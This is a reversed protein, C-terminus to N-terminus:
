RGRSAAPARRTRRPRPRRRGPPPSCWRRRRTRRVRREVVEGHGAQREAPDALAPHTRVVPSGAELREAVRLADEGLRRGDIRADDVGRVPPELRLEEPPQQSAPRSGGRSGSTRPCRRRAALEVALREAELLEFPRVEAEGPEPELHARVLQVHLRAGGRHRELVECELDLVEFDTRSSSASCPRSTVALGVTSPAPRCANKLSGVPLMMSSFWGPQASGHARELVPPVTLGGLRVRQQSAVDGPEGVQEGPDARRDVSPHEVVVVDDREVDPRVEEEGVARHEAPGHSVGLERRDDVPQVAEVGAPGPTPQISREAQGIGGISPIPSM